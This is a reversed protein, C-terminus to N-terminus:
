AFSTIKDPPTFSIGSYLAKNATFRYQAFGVKTRDTSYTQDSPWGYTYPDYSGNNWGFDVTIPRGIGRNYPGIYDETINTFNNNGIEYGGRARGMSYIIDPGNTDDYVADSNIYYFNPNLLDEIAVQPVNWLSIQTGNWYVSIQEGDSVFAVHIWAGASPDYGPLAYVGSPNDNFDSSGSILGGNSPPSLDTQYPVVPYLKATYGQEEIIVPTPGQTFRYKSAAGILSVSCFLGAIVMVMYVNSELLNPIEPLGWKVYFEETWKWTNRFPNIKSKSYLVNNSLQPPFVSRGIQFASESYTPNYYSLGGLSTLKVKHTTPIFCPGGGPGGSNSDIFIFGDNVARSENFLYVPEKIGKTKVRFGKFLLDSNPVSTFFGNPLEPSAYYPANWVGNEYEDLEWKLFSANFYEFYPYGESPYMSSPLNVYDKDIPAVLISFNELQNNKGGQIEKKRYREEDSGGKTKDGPDQTGGTNQSRQAEPSNTNSSPTIDGPSTTSNRGSSNSLQSPGSNKRSLETRTNAELQNGREKQEISARNANILARVRDVLDDFQVSINLNIAM